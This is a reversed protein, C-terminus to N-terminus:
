AMAKKRLKVRKSKDQIRGEARLWRVTDEITQRFPRTTYGLERSAKEHSFEANSSLTYLSYATYLPPQKKMKYWAEAVGATGKAFWLPLFTRIRRKGTVEHFIEFLDAVTFYRNSLIYCEGKRGRECCSVIGAAVDRVDVFDYGGDVGASLSGNCYDIVLQTIHGRGPDGPGSIGSPHVVCADLGRTRAANLVYQTAEAKTKAYVGEVLAPDFLDTEAIIEGRPREPIAHVSSVHVLRKVKKECCLDVVNRTGQVNVRYIKPDYKSAISVIGAAHIVILKQNRRVAFAPELSKLDTVDGVFQAVEAPLRSANPDGELVLARVKKKQACLQAVIQSGLHGAAGTVLYITEM